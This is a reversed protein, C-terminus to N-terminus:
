SLETNEFYVTGVVRDAAPLQSQLLDPEPEHLGQVAVVPEGPHTPGDVAVIHDFDPRATITKVLFWRPAAGLAVYHAQTLKAGKPDLQVFRKVDVVELQQAKRRLQGGREFHGEFVDAILTTLRDPGKAALRALEFKEPVITWLDLSQQLASRLATDLAQEAFRVALLVQFDHPAHFMPLHSALLGGSGGFLVMGHTGWSPGPVDHHDHDPM